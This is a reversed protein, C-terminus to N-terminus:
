YSLSIPQKDSPEQISNLEQKYIWRDIAEQSFMIRRRLRYHPIEKERVMKYITDTHVGLYNAAEKVDLRTMGPM